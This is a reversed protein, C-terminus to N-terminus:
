ANRPKRQRRPLPKPAPTEWNEGSVPNTQQALAENMEAAEEDAKEAEKVGEAIAKEEASVPEEEPKAEEAKPPNLQQMAEVANRNAEDYVACFAEYSLPIEREQIMLRGGGFIVEDSKFSLIREDDNAIVRAVIDVMGSIKNAIKDQINPKIATLKGDRKTIDKSTDEHSILVINEYDMNILRKITSLFETRVKDWARFSDDSEHSIHLKDYMYLRCMEYDDELLDVVITKFTNQKKELEAIVEKFKDWAFKRTTMRGSVTVEDRIPIAPADVFKINGDTNLMLPDPFCNAFWTKGSFPAGYIWIVRKSVANLNRRENKPLIMYDIGKQCYDQYECWKCLYTTNKPYDTTELCHKIGTLYEIVKNPNYYLEILEIEKRSLVGELRARFQQVTEGERASLKVKPVIIYFLRHISKGPNLKEFYYKYLHLQASEYYRSASSAYKFDFLDYADPIIEDHFGKAPSLLDIFGVFDKDTLKVEFQSDPAIMARVKPIWWELKIQENVHADTIIPYANMYENIGAETGQEIGTHLAHGLILPNDANDPPLTGLKDLYRM